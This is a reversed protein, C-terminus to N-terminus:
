IGDFLINLLLEFLGSVLDTGSIWNSLRFKRHKRKKKKM